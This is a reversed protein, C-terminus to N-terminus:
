DNEIQGCYLAQYFDALDTFRYVSRGSAVVKKIGEIATDSEFRIASDVRDLPVFAYIRKSNKYLRKLVCVCKKDALNNSKSRYAFIDKDPDGISNINIIKPSEKGLIVKQM